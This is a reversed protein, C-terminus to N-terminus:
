VCSKFRSLIILKAAPLCMIHFLCILMAKNELEECFSADQLQRRLYLRLSLCFQLKYLFVNLYSGFPEYLTDVM